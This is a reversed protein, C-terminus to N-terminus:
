EGQNQKRRKDAGAIIDNTRAIFKLDTEPLIIPEICGLTNALITSDGDVDDSFDIGRALSRQLQLIFDNAPHRAQVLRDRLSNDSDRGVVIL